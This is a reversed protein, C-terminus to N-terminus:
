PMGEFRMCFDTMEITEDCFKDVYEKQRKELLGVFAMLIFIVLFDFLVVFIGFDNKNVEQSFGEIEIQVTEQICGAIALIIPEPVKDDETETDITPVDAYEPDSLIESLM